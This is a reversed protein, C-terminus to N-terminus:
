HQPRGRVWGEGPPLPSRLAHERYQQKEAEMRLPCRDADEVVSCDLIAGGGRGVGETFGDGGGLGCAAPRDYNGSSRVISAGDLQDAVEDQVEVGARGDAEGDLPQGIGVAAHLPDFAELGDRQDAPLVQLVDGDGALPDDGGVVGLPDLEHAGGGGGGCAALVALLGALPIARIFPPLSHSM